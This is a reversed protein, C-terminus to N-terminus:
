HPTLRSLRDNIKEANEKGSELLRILMAARAQAETKWSGNAPFEKGDLDYALWFFQDPNYGSIRMSDYGPPLMEGLEAVTYASFIHHSEDGSQILDSLQEQNPWDTVERFHWINQGRFYYESEQAIGLEKLRKAQELTCVQQETNM